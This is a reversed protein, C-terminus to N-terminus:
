ILVISVHYVISDGAAAVAAMWCSRAAGRGHSKGDVDFCSLRCRFAM